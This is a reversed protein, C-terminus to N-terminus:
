PAGKTTTCETPYRGTHHWWQEAAQITPQKCNPCAGAEDIEAVEYHVGPNPHARRLDAVVARAAGEDHCHTYITTNPGDRRIQAATECMAERRAELVARLQKSARAVAADEEVEIKRAWAGADDVIWLVVHSGLREDVARGTDVYVERGDRIYTRVPRRPATLTVM